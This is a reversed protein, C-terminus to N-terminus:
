QYDYHLIRVLGYRTYTLFVRDAPPIPPNLIRHFRDVGPLGCLLEPPRTVGLKRVTNSSSGGVTGKGNSVWMGQGPDDSYRLFLDWWGGGSGEEDM